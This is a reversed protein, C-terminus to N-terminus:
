LDYHAQIHKMILFTKVEYHKILIDFSARMHFSLINEPSMYLVEEIM